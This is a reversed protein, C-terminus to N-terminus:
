MNKSKSFQPILSQRWAKSKKEKAASKLPATRKIRNAKPTAQEDDLVYQKLEIFSAPKEVEIETLDSCAEFDDDLFSANGMESCDTEELNSDYIREESHVAFFGQFIGKLTEPELANEQQALIKFIQLKEDRNKSNQNILADKQIAVLQEQRELSLMSMAFSWKFSKEMRGQLKEFREQLQVIEREASDVNHNLITNSSQLSDLLDCFVDGLDVDGPVLDILKELLELRSKTEEKQTRYHYLKKESELLNLHISTAKQLNKQYLEDSEVSRLLKLEARLAAIIKPYQSVHEEADVINQVSKTKILKARQAFKLSNQTEAFHYMAPSLNTIM